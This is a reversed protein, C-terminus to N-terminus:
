MEMELLFAEEEAGAPEDEQFVIQGDTLTAWLKASDMTPDDPGGLDLVGNFVADPALGSEKPTQDLLVPHQEYYIDGTLRDSFFIDMM